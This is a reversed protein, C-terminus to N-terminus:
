PHRSQNLRQRVQGAIVGARLAELPLYEAELWAAIEKAAGLRVFGQESDLVLAALRKQAMALTAHRLQAPSGVNSRGDTVLVLLPTLAADRQLYSSLVREALQLGAALPTRGGTPMQRLRQEALEVSNTPPVLLEAGQGRFAILGVRDRKQYADLLLSLVAGKVAVMRQRAGMSGSADVVFLILNGTRARRIKVRLDTPIILRPPSSALIQSENRRADEGGRARRLAAARLTADVAVDRVSGQPVAARIYHGGQNVATTQSRRGRGPQPQRRTAAPAIKRVAFSDGPTFTQDSQASWPGSVPSPQSDKSNDSESM